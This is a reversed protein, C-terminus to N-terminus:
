HPNKIRKNLAAVQAKVSKEWLMRHNRVYNEFMM